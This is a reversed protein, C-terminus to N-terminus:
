SSQVRSAVGESLYAIDRGMQRASAYREAPNKALAKAVLRDVLPPLDRLLWSPVPVPGYLHACALDSASVASFAPKGTLAEYLVLGAQYIDSREDGPQGQLREPPVYRLSGLVQGPAGLTSRGELRGLGFDLLVWGAPARVLHDPKVDRHIIRIAHLGELAELLHACAQLAECFTLGPRHALSDLRPGEVYETALFPRNKIRGARLFRVVRPLDMQSLIEVERELARWSLDDPQVGEPAIKLAVRAGTRERALYVTAMPGQGLQRLVTYEGLVREDGPM